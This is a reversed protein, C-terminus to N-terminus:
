KRALPEANSGLPLGRSQGRIALALTQIPRGNRRLRLSPLSKTGVAAELPKACPLASPRMACCDRCGSRDLGAGRGRASPQGSGERDRGDRDADPQGSRDESASRPHDRLELKTSGVKVGREVGFNAGARWAQSAVEQLLLRLDDAKMWMDGTNVVTNRCSTADLAGPRHDIVLRTLDTALKPSPSLKSEPPCTM